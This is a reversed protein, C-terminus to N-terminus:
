DSRRLEVPCCGRSEGAWGVGVVLASVLLLRAKVPTSQIASVVNASITSQVEAAEGAGAGEALPAENSASAELHASRADLYLLANVHYLVFAHSTLHGLVVAWGNGAVRAFGHRDVFELQGDAFVGIDLAVVTVGVSIGALVSYGAGLRPRLDLVRLATAGGRDCELKGLIGGLFGAVDSDM